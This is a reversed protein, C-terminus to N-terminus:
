NQSMWLGLCTLGYLKLGNDEEGRRHRTWLSEIFASEFWESMAPHSLAQESTERLSSLIWQSVPANFGAKARRLVSPPLRPRQSRRLLHKTEFGKLKLRVPLSAAFEVLRHDLFPTRVELSHAMSARDVKVLIDDPLWTKIDVFLAQDLPDCGRVREFHLRFDETPDQALVERHHEPRVLQAKEEESFITRWFCHARWAPLRHGALFRRVKFDLSVKRHTVPLVRDAFVGLARSGWGPVWSTLHRLRDAVYTTYGALIEDAGDGSLCVTVHRRAFEALFYVPIASTDAFPEDMHYAIRPLSAALTPEVLHDRHDSGLFEAVTRAEPVESYSAERFGCTFTKPKEALGQGSLAAMAAVVTSSDAGGSLFAGIPVDSVLRMRVADDILASLAEEAASPTPYRNKREFCAALDWYSRDDFRGGVGVTVIHGPAVKTVGELISSTGLVYNLSLFQGIARPSLRREVAPHERLAKLESAFVLGGGPLRKYLLPKEGLRDRALVLEQRAEDWIALAFMGNLKEPFVTGWRKYAELIVETDSKTRFSVGLDQLEARLERYNYIEGNYVIWYRGSSDAMPQNSSSDLDIVALRRHVLGVHPRTVVGQADPGRHGLRCGMQELVARDLPESTPSLIGGIGCV